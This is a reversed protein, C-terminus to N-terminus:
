RAVGRTVTWRTKGEFLKGSEIRVGFRALVPALTRFRNVLGRASHPWSKQTQATHGATHGLLALAEEAPGTWRPADKPFSNTWRVIAVAVPDAEIVTNAVTTINQRYATLFTGETWGLGPECAAVWAAFEAMRPLDDPPKMARLRKLGVSVATLLAGVIRPWAAEFNKEVQADPRRDSGDRPPLIQAIFRDALDPRTVVENIAALIIPRCADFVVEETDSYLQRTALGGGTSLRCMADSLEPGIKSLNDHSQIHSLAASIMLDRENRPAARAIARNPDVLRRLQRM